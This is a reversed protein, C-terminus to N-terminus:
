QPFPKSRKRWGRSALDELHQTSYRERNHDKRERLAILGLAYPLMFYHLKGGAAEFVHSLFMVVIQLVLPATVFPNGNPIGIYRAGMAHMPEYNLVAFLLLGAFFGALSSLDNKRWAIMLCVFIIVTIIFISPPMFIPRASTVYHGRAVIGIVFSLAVVLGCLVYFPWWENQKANAARLDAFWFAFLAVVGGEFFGSALPTLTAPVTAGFFLIPPEAQRIGMWQIGFEMLTQLLVGCGFILLYRHDRKYYIFYAAVALSILTLILRTEYYGSLDFNRLM